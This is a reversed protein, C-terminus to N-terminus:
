RITRQGLYNRILPIVAFSAVKRPKLFLTFRPMIDVVCRPYLPRM